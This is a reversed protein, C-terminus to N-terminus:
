VYARRIRKKANEIERIDLNLYEAIDANKFVGHEYAYFLKTAVVDGKERATNKLHSYQQEHYYMDDPQPIDSILDVSNLSLHKDSKEIFHSYDSRCIHMLHQSLTHRGPSWKREGSLLKGVADLVWERPSREM